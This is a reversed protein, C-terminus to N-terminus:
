SGPAGAAPSRPRAGPRDRCRGSCRAPSGGDRRGRRGQRRRGPGPLRGSGATSAKIASAGGTSGSLASGSGMPCCAGGRFTASMSRPLRSSPLRSSMISPMTTSRRPHRAQLRARRSGGRATRLGAARASAAPQRAAWSISLSVPGTSRRSSQSPPRTSPSSSAGLPPSRLRRVLRHGAGREASAGAAVAPTGGGGIRARDLGGGAVGGASSACSIAPGAGAPPEDRPRAPALAPLM